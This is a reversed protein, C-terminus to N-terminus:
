LIEKGLYFTVIVAVAVAVVIVSVIITQVMQNSFILCICISHEINTFHTSSLCCLSLFLCVLACEITLLLHVIFLSFFYIIRFSNSLLLHCVFHWSSIFSISTLCHYIAFYYHLCHAFAQTAPDESKDRTFSLQVCISLNCKMWEWISTNLLFVVFVFFFDLGDFFPSVIRSICASNFNNM